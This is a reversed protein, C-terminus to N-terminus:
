ANKKKSKKKVKFGLGIVVITLVIIAAYLVPKINNKEIIVKNELLPFEYKIALDRIKTEDIKYDSMFELM